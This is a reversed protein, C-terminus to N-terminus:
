YLELHTNPNDLYSDVHSKIKKYVRIELYVMVRITRSSWENLDIYYYEEYERVINKIHNPLRQIDPKNEFHIRGYKSKGSFYSFGLIHDYFGFLNSLPLIITIVYIVGIKLDNIIFLEKAKMKSNYFILFLTLVNFAMLPIVAYGFVGKLFTTLIFLYMIAILWVGIKRTKVFLLLLGFGAELFPLAYTFSVRM